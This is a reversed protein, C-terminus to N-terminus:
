PKGPDRQCLFIVRPHRLFLRDRKIGAQANPFMGDGSSIGLRLFKEVLPQDQQVAEVTLLREAGKLLRDLQIRAGSHRM